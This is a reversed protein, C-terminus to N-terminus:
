ILKYNGLLMINSVLIMLSSVCSGIFQHCHTLMNVFVICTTMALILDVRFSVIGVKYILL